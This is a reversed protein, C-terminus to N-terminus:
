RYRGRKGRMEEWQARQEDTLVANIEAHQQTRLVIMDAKLDGQTDAVNRVATENFPSQQTLQRLQERNAQMKDRLDSMQQRSEDVIAEVKARQDDTLDLRDAMREVNFGRHGGRECDPGDGFPKASITAALGLSSVILVGALVPKSLRKM